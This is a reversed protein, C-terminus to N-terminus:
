DTCGDQKYGMTQGVKVLEEMLNLISGGTRPNVSKKFHGSYVSEAVDDKSGKNLLTQFTTVGEEHGGQSFEGCEKMLNCWYQLINNRYWGKSYSGPPYQPFEEPKNYNQSREEFCTELVEDVVSDVANLDVENVDDDSDHEDDSEDLFDSVWGTVEQGIKAYPCKDYEEWNEVGFRLGTVLCFEERGFQISLDNTIYYNLPVNEDDDNEDYIQCGNISEVFKDLEKAEEMVDWRGLPTDFHTLHLLHAMDRPPALEKVDRDHLGHIQRVIALGEEDDSVSWRDFGYDYEPKVGIRKDMLNLQRSLSRFISIRPSNANTIFDHIYPPCTGNFVLVNGDPYGDDDYGKTYFCHSSSTTLPRFSGANEGVERFHLHGGWNSVKMASTSGSCSHLPFQFKWQVRAGVFLWGKKFYGSYVVVMALLLSRLSM